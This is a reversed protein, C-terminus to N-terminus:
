FYKVSQREILAAAEAIDALLNQAADLRDAGRRPSFAAASTVFAEGGGGGAARGSSTLKVRENSIPIIEETNRAESVIEERRRVAAESVKRSIDFLPNFPPSVSQAHASSALSSFALLALCTATRTM